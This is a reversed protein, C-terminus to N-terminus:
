DCKDFIEGLNRRVDDMIEETKGKTFESSDLSIVGSRFASIICKKDKRKNRVEILVKDGVDEAYIRNDVITKILKM